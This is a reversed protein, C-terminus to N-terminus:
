VLYIKRRCDHGGSYTSGDDPHKLFETCAYCRTFDLCERDHSPVTRDYYYGGECLSELPICCCLRNQCFYSELMEKRGQGREEIDAFFLTKKGNCNAVFNIHVFLGRYEWFTRSILPECLEFKVERKKNFSALALESLYAQEKTVKREMLKAEMEEVTVNKCRIEEAQASNDVIYNFKEDLFLSGHEHIYNRMVADARDIAKYFRTSEDDDDKDELAALEEPSIPDGIDDATALLTRVKGSPHDEAAIVIPSPWPRDLVARVSSSADSFPAPETEKEKEKEKEAIMSPRHETCDM